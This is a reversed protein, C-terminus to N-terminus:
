EIRHYIGAGVAKILGSAELRANMLQLIIKKFYMNIMSSRQEFPKEHIKSHIRTRVLM